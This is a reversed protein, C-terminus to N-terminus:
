THDPHNARYEALQADIDMKMSYVEMVRQMNIFKYKKLEEHINEHEFVEVPYDEYDFDDCVIIVHTCTEKAKGERVWKAIDTDTAAM